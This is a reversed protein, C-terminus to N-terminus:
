VFLSLSWVPSIYTHKYSDPALLFKDVLTLPMMEWSHIRCWWYSSTRSTWWSLRAKTFLSRWNCFSSSFLIHFSDMQGTHHYGLLLWPSHNRHTWLLCDIWSVPFECTNSSSASSGVVTSWISRLTGKSPTKRQFCTLIFSTLEGPSHEKRLRDRVEEQLFSVQIEPGPWTFPLSEM